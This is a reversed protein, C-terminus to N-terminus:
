GCLEVAVAVAAVVVMVAVIRLASVNPNKSSLSMVTRIDQPGGPGLLTIKQQTHPRIIMDAGTRHISIMQDVMRLMSNANERAVSFIVDTNQPVCIAMAAAFMATATTKGARRSSTLMLEQPLYSRGERTILDHAYADYSSGLVLKAVCRMMKEHMRRQNRNRRLNGFGSELCTELQRWVVEGAAADLRVAEDRAYEREYLRPVM